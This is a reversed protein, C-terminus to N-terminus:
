EIKITLASILQSWHHLFPHEIEAIFFSRGQSRGLDLSSIGLFPLSRAANADNM